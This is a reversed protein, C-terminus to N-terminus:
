GKCMNTMGKNFLFYPLEQQKLLNQFRHSFNFKSSLDDLINNAM